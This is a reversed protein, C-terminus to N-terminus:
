ALYIGQAPLLETLVYDRHDSAAKQFAIHPQEMAEDFTLGGDFNKIAEKWDLGTYDPITGGFIKGAAAKWAESRATKAGKTALVDRVDAEIDGFTRSGGGVEAFMRHLAECGALFEDLNKRKPPTEGSEYTFSWELFPTDPLMLVPGHGLAGGTEGVASEAETIFKSNRGHPIFEAFFALGKKDLANLLLPDVEDFRISTGIVRNLPSSIGAFGWHSYTDALVHATIGLRERWGSSKAKAIELTKSVMSKANQSDKLCRLRKAPTDGIGGPLFHFPVWVRRQDMVDFNHERDETPHATAQSAICKGDSFAIFNGEDNDDVFQAATAIVLADDAGIGAARALAYTGYYHMDIQM